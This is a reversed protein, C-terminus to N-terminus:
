ESRGVWGGERVRESVWGSEDVSEGVSESVGGGGIQRGGGTGKM